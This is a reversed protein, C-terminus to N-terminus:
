QNLSVLETITFVYNPCLSSFEQFGLKQSLNYSFIIVNSKDEVDSAPLYHFLMWLLQSFVLRPIKNGALIDNVGHSDFLSIQM